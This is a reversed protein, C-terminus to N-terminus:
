MKKQKFTANMHNLISNYYYQHQQNLLITRIQHELETAKLQWQNRERLTMNLKKRIQTDPGPHAPRGIQESRYIDAITDLERNFKDCVSGLELVCDDLDAKLMGIEEEKKQVLSTLMSIMKNKEELELYIDPKFSTTKINDSIVNSSSTSYNPSEGLSSITTIPIILDSLPRNTYPPTNNDLHKSQSSPLTSITSQSHITSFESGPEIMMPTPERLSSSRGDDDLKGSYNNTFSFSLEESLRKDAASQLEYSATRTPHISPTLSRQSPNTLISDNALRYFVSQYPSSLFPPSENRIHKMMRDNKNVISSNNDSDHSYQSKISINSSRISSACSRYISSSGFNTEMVVPEQYPGYSASTAQPARAESTPYFSSVSPNANLNVTSSKNSVDQRRHQYSNHSAGLASFLKFTPISKKRIIEQKVISFRSNSPQQQCSQQYANKVLQAAKLLDRDCDLLNGFLQNQAEIVHGTQFVLIMESKNNITNGIACKSRIAFKCNEEKEHPVILGVINPPVFCKSLIAKIDSTNNEICFLAIDNKNEVRPYKLVSYINAYFHHNNWQCYSTKILGDCQKIENKVKGFQYIFFSKTKDNTQFYERNILNGGSHTLSFHHGQQEDQFYAELSRQTTQDTNDPSALPQGSSANCMLIFSKLNDQESFGEHIAVDNISTWGIFKMKGSNARKRIIFDTRESGEYMRQELGCLDLGDMEYSPRRVVMLKDSFLFLTVPQIPKLTVPDIEAMDLYSIFRRQFSILSEPCYLIAQLLQRFIKMLQIHAEETMNAIEEAKLLSSYLGPLDKHDDTTHKILEKFYMTYRGVRQIPLALYDYVTQNGNNKNNNVKELFHVYNPNKMQKENIVQANHVGLLYKNYCSFRRMHLLCLDGFNETAPNYHVLDHYFDETVQVLEGINMFINICEYQGIIARHRDKSRQRLPEVILTVFTKLSNLYNAETNIFENLLYQRRENNKVFERKKSIPPTTYYYLTSPSSIINQFNEFVKSAAVSDHVLIDYYHCLPELALTLHQSKTSNFDHLQRSYSYGISELGIGLQQM